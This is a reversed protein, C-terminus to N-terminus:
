AAPLLGHQRLLEGWRAKEELEAQVERRYRRLDHEAQFRASVAQQLHSTLEVYEGTADPEAQAAQTVAELALNLDTLLNDAEQVIDGYAQRLKANDAQSAELAQRVSTENDVLTNVEEKLAALDAALLDREQELMAVELESGDSPEPTPPKENALAECADVLEPLKRIWRSLVALDINHDVTSSRPESFTSFPSPRSLSAGPSSFSPDGLTKAFVNRTHPSRSLATPSAIRGNEKNAYERAVKLQLFNIHHRLRELPPLDDAGQMEVDDLDPEAISKRQLKGPTSPSSFVDAEDVPKPPSPPGRITAGSTVRRSRIHIRSASSSSPIRKEGGALSGSQKRGPGGLAAVKKKAPTPRPSLEVPPRSRKSSGPQSGSDGPRALDSLSPSSQYNVEADTSAHQRRQPTPSRSRAFPLQAPSSCGFSTEASGAPPPRMDRPGIMRRRTSGVQPRYAMPSSMPGDADLPLHWSPEPADMMPSPEPVPYPEDGYPQEISHAEQYPQEQEYPEDCPASDPQAHQLSPALSPSNFRAQPPAPLSLSRRGAARRNRSPGSPIGVVVDESEEGTDDDMGVYPSAVSRPGAPARHSISGYLDPASKKTLPIRTSQSLSAFPQQDPQQQRPSRSGSFLAGLGPSVPGSLNPTGVTTTAASSAKSTMSNGRKLSTGGSLVDLAASLLNSRPRTPREALSLPRLAPFAFLGYSFGLEAVAGAIRDLNITDANDSSIDSSKFLGSPLFTARASVVPRGVRPATFAASIGDEALYLALKGRQEGVTNEWTRRDWVAWHVETSDSAAGDEWIRKGKIAVRAGSKLKAQLVAESVKNLWVEKEPRRVDPAYTDASVVFKRAPRGCWRESQDMPPNDFILGFEPSASSSSSPSSSGSGLDVAVVDSLLVHGRYGLVGKRLKKPSGLLNAQSSSLHSTQYLDVVRSLDNLGAHSKGPEDGSPRKAILLTDNFLFLTCRLVTPRRDVIEIIEDADICAVFQRDSGVMQDPFGDITEKLSWFVAAKKTAEDVQMTCIDTLIGVAIQLPEVNEDDPPLHAIIPDLMLRYRSIRQFPEALFEKFGGTAQAAERSFVQTREVFERFSSNTKELNQRIAEAAASTALWKKYPQMREVHRLVVEGFRAPLRTKDKRLQVAVDRLDRAFGEAVPVLEDLNGFLHTAEFAPIIATERKKSFTRLPVAYDKHLSALKRVYNEETVCLEHLNQRAKEYDVRTTKGPTTPRSPQPDSPGSEPLQIPTGLSDLFVAIPSVPPTAADGM